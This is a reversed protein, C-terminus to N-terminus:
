DEVSVPMYELEMRDCDKLGLRGLCNSPDTNGMVAKLVTSQIGRVQEALGPVLLHAKSIKESWIKRSGLPPVGPLGVAGLPGFGLGPLTRPRTEDMVGV